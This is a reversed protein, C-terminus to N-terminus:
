FRCKLAIMSFNLPESAFVGNNGKGKVISGFSPLKYTDKVFSKYTRNASMLMCMYPASNWEPIVLTCQCKEHTIKDVCKAIMSPPPVLWNIVGQWSVSFSDVGETGPVWWKSNFRKCHNNYHTAFRDIEHPGWLKELYTFVQESISWDDSDLCRSLHDAKTNQNRPIWVVYLNIHNDFCLEFLNLATEHIM